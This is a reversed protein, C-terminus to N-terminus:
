TEEIQQSSTSSNKSNRVKLIVGGIKVVGKDKKISFTEAKKTKELAEGKETEREPGNISSYDDEKSMSLKKMVVKVSNMNKSDWEVCCLKGDKTFMLHQPIAWTTVDALFDNFIKKKTKLDIIQAGYMSDELPPINYVLGNPAIHPSAKCYYDGMKEHFERAGTKLNLGTLYIKVPVDESNFYIANHTPSIDMDRVFIEKRPMTYHWQESGDEEKISAIIKNCGVILSGDVAYVKKVKVMELHGDKSEAVSHAFPKKWKVSFNNNADYATIYIPIGDDAGGKTIAFVLGTKDDMVMHSASCDLGKEVQMTKTDVQFVSMQKSEKDEKHFISTIFGFVSHKEDEVEAKLFIKGNHFGLLQPPSDFPKSSKEIKGTSPNIAYVRYETILKKDKDWKPVYGIAYYSGDSGKIIPSSTVVSSIWKENGNSVDLAVIPTPSMSPFGPCVDNTYISDDWSTLVVGKEEDILNPVGCFQKEWLNKFKCAVGSGESVSRSGNTGTAKKSLIKSMVDRPIGGHPQKDQVFKDVTNINIPQAKSTYSINQNTISAGVKKVEMTSCRRGTQTAYRIITKGNCSIM